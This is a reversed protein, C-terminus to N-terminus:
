ATLPPGLGSGLGKDHNLKEVRLAEGMKNWVEMGLEPGYFRTISELFQIGDFVMSDLDDQM